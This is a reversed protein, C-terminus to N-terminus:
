GMATTAPKVRRDMGNAACGARLESGSLLWQVGLTYVPAQCSVTTRRILFCRDGLLLCARGPRHDGHRVPGHLVHRAQVALSSEDGASGAAEAVLGGKLKGTGAGF